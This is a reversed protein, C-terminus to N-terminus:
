DSALDLMLHLVQEVGLRKVERGAGLWGYDDNPNQVFRRTYPRALPHVLLSTRLSFTFSRAASVTPCTMWRPKQSKIMPTLWAPEFM